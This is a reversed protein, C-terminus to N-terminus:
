IRVKVVNYFSAIYQFFDMLLIDQVLQEACGFVEMGAIDNM